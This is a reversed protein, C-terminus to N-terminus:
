NHTEALTNVLCVSAQNFEKGFLELSFISSLNPIAFIRPIRTEEHEHVVIIGFKSAFM